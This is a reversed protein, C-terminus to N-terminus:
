FDQGISITLFWVKNEGKECLIRSIENITSGTTYIDDVLLIKKPEDFSKTVCFADKLNKRRERNDLKKQPETYSKRKVIKTDVPVGTYEGLHRALVETQNYGRIRKRRKHLPVPIILDIGWRIILEGYLRYMEKAYFEGYIRKNHYKYQYISSSVPEKHVWVSRGQEYHSYQRQCDYCYEREFYRIPKGCRKCRPETIYIVKERCDDCMEKESLKGCFCCTKPYLVGLIQEFIKKRYKM